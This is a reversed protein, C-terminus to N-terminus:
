KKSEENFQLQAKLSRIEEELEVNKKYQINWQDKWKESEVISFALKSKFSSQHVFMEILSRMMTNLKKFQDPKKTEDVKDIWDKIIDMLMSNNYQYQLDEMSSEVAGLYYRDMLM